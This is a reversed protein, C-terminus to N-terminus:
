VGYRKYDLAWPKANISVYRPGCISFRYVDIDSPTTILGSDQTTLTNLNLWKANTLNDGVDDNEFNLFANGTIGVSGNSHDLQTLTCSTASKGNHWITVNKLIDLV